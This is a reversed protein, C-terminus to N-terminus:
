GSGGSNVTLTRIISLIHFPLPRDQTLLIQSGGKTWGLISKSKLGTFVPPPQDLLDSGFERFSFNVGNVKIAVTNLVRLTIDSTSMAQGQASGTGTQLEPVLPKITCTYPLGITVAFANRPLTIQGGAVVFNGMDSGDAICAVTKGQLHALGSWVNAGPGSTGLIGCDVLVGPVLREVYRVTAGNITRKVIQWTQDGGTTPITCASEYVGDTTHRMWATVNQETSITLAAIVGDSRIGYALPDPEQAFSLQGCSRDSLGPGTIHESLATIDTSDYADDAAYYKMLRLKTNNRQVFVLSKGIRIPRIAGCGYNTENDVQLNTPTIPKEVGGRISFEGGYTLASLVKGSSLHRIPNLQDSGLTYTFADDDFTGLTFDLYLGTSSGWFTQPFRPSGGLILRQQYITGTRPYGSTASWQAGRLIWSNPPAAVVGTLEQKIIGTVILASTFGTILVLGGNISVWKGIDTVRFANIDSTLTVAVELPSKVSPTVTSFPSDTLTWVSVPIATSTFPTTIDGTVHTSDTFLTIKLTGGLYTISRGVDAALFTAGSAVVTRGAGVTAASLTLSTAFNDGIEDVPTVTFPAVSVDWATDSFRQIRYTPLNPHFVFMTDASQVYDLDPLMAETWPTVVEYPTLPASLIQGNNTYFRLYLDGFELAYSQSTSVVFPVLEARKAAFKAAAVFLSGYRNTVGGHILVNVNELTECGNPYKDIDVRGLLRPSFEGGTFNTQLQIVRPM